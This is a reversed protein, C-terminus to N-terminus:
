VVILLIHVFYLWVISGCHQNLILAVYSSISHDGFRSITTELLDEIKAFELRELVQQMYETSITSSESGARSKQRVKPGVLYFVVQDLNKGIAM